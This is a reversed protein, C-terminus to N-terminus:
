SSFFWWSNNKVWWSRIIKVWDNLYTTYVNFIYFTSKKPRLGKIRDGFREVVFFNLQELLLWSISMRVLYHDLTKIFYDSNKRDGLNRIKELKSGASKIRYYEYTSSRYNYFYLCSNDEDCTVENIFPPFFSDPLRRISQCASCLRLYGDEQTGRRDCGFPM